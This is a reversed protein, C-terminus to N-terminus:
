ASRTPANRLPPLTSPAPALRGTRVRQVQRAFLPMLMALTGAAPQLSTRPAEPPVAEGRLSAPMNPDLQATSSLLRTSTSSEVNAVASVLALVDTADDAAVVGPLTRTGHVSSMAPLEPALSPSCLSLVARGNHPSHAHPSSRTGQCGASAPDAGAAHTLAPAPFAAPSPPHSHLQWTTVSGVTDNPPPPPPSPTARSGLSLESAPRSPGSAFRRNLGELRPARDLWGSGCGGLRADATLTSPSANPSPLSAVPRRGADTGVCRPLRATSALPLAPDSLLSAPEPHDVGPPPLSAPRLCPLGRLRRAGRPRMPAM